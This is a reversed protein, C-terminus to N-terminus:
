PTAVPNEGGPLGQPEDRKGTLPARAAEQGSYKELFKAVQEAEKGVVINQPMPGSSFGGNRIAYLIQDYEEKRQDFNPGDKYERSTVRSSSGQQGAAGLTHCAGCRNYFIEAGRQIDPDRENAALEVAETGCAAAFLSCIVLLAATPLRCRM